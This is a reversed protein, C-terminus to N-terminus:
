THRPSCARVASKAGLPSSTSSYSPPSMTSRSALALESMRRPMEEMVAAVRATDLGAAMLLIREVNYPVQLPTIILIASFSFGTKIRIGM